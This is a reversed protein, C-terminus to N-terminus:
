VPAVPRPFGPSTNLVLRTNTEIAGLDDKLRVLLHNLEAVDTAAVRAQMDFPGTLHVANIVCPEALLGADIVDVEADPSLRIDVLAEITRGVAAPDVVVTTGIIVGDNQLRRLRESTASPSLPLRQALESVSVRADAALEGIIRRDIEDMVVFEVAM